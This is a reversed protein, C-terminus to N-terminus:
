RVVIVFATSVSVGGVEVTATVTTVGAGVTRLTNDAEVVVVSPRQSRYSVTMGSPLPLPTRHGYRVDDNMAVTLRPLVVVGRQYIVRQAIGLPEDGAAVPRATLVVPRQALRGTVAFDATRGIDRSSSGVELRYRGPDVVFRGDREDFFALDAVTVPVSVSTTQGPELFVKALGVLRKAPRELEAAADPTSAYVQVVNAGAVPGTKTVDVEIRVHGDASTAARDLRAESYGFTTYSLGHGFPYAAAGTFYM